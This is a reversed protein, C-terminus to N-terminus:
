NTSSTDRRPDLAGGGDSTSIGGGGGAAKKIWLGEQSGSAGLHFLVVM